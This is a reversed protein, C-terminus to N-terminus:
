PLAASAITFTLTTTTLANKETDQLNSIKVSWAGVDLADTQIDVSTPDGSVPDIEWIEASGSPGAFTYNAPNLADHTGTTSAMWPPASFQVRVTAPGIPSASLAQIAPTAM